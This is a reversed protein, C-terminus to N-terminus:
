AAAPKFNKKYITRILWGLALLGAAFALAGLLLRPAKGHEMIIFDDALGLNLNKLQTMDKDSLDLGFQVLGQNPGELETLVKQALKEDPGNPGDLRDVLVTMDDDTRKLVIQTKGVTTGKARMPIYVAKIEKNKGEEIAMNDLDPECETLKLFRNDPRDKLYAACTIELPERERLGTYLNQGGWWLGLGAVAIVFILGRM